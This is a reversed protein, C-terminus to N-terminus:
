LYFLFINNFHIFFNQKTINTEDVIPKNPTLPLPVPSPINDNPHHIPVVPKTIANIQAM